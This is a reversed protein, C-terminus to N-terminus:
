GERGEVLFDGVIRAFEEAHEIQTWHGCRGFLHAQADDIWNLLTLSTQLPIVQDDRGHIILTRHPLARIAAEPHAMADVWRQRPAPFMAAFKEQVGPRISAAYRARVLDDTILSADYAFTHRLLDGMTAESPEYGWVADLGATIEFPVGVAGMLVMRDVREPHAIALALAMSGGFSNGVVSVRPLDLADLLDVLQTLWRDLGYTIDDPVQTFGFGAFDPAILRMRPALREFQLRWNAWASVGPGSGHLMLVPTGAGVDHYNTVLDGTTVLHGIEPNASM